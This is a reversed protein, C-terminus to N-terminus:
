NNALFDKLIMAAAMADVLMRAEQWTYGMKKLEANAESSSYREDWGTVPVTLGATVADKVALTEDTKATNGGEIAYPVGFVVLLVRQENVLENLTQVLAPVGTNELVRFPKAFIRLPDTM